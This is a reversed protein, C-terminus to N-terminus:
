SSGMMSRNELQISAMALALFIWTHVDLRVGGYVLYQALMGLFGALYGITEPRSIGKKMRHRASKLLASAGMLILYSLALLGLIGLEAMVAWIVGHSGADHALYSDDEAAALGFNGLGVGVLPSTKFLEISAKWYDSRRLGIYPQAEAGQATEASIAESIRDSAVRLLDVDQVRVLNLGVVTLLITLLVLTRRRWVLFLVILGVSVGFYAGLSITSILATIQLALILLLRPRTLIQNHPALALSLTLCTPGILFHGLNLPEVFTASSRYLTNGAVEYIFTSTDRLALSVDHGPLGFYYAVQQYIAFVAVGCSVLIFAKLARHYNRHTRIAGLAGLYLMIALSLAAFQFVPRLAAYRLAMSSSDTPRLYIAVPISIFAASAYIAIARNFRRVQSHKRSLWYRTTRICLVLGVIYAPLIYFGVSIVLVSQFPLSLLLCTLLTETKAVFAGVLILAIFLITGVVALLLPDTLTLPILAGMGVALAGAASVVAIHRHGVKDLLQTQM